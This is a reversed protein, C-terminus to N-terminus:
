PLLSFIGKKCWMAALVTEVLDQLKWCRCSQGQKQLLVLGPQLRISLDPHFLNNLVWSYPSWSFNDGGERERSKSQMLVAILGFM